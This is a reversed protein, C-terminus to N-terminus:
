TCLVCIVAMNYYYNNNNQLSHIIKSKMELKNYIKRSCGSM